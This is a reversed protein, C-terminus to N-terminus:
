RDSSIEADKFPNKDIMYKLVIDPFHRREDRAIDEYVM